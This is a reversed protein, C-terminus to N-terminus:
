LIRSVSLLELPRDVFLHCLRHLLFLNIMSFCQVEALACHFCIQAKPELSLSSLLGQSQDQREVEEVEPTASGTKGHGSM